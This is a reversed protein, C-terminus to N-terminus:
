YITRFLRSCALSSIGIVNLVANEKVVHVKIEEEVERFEGRERM